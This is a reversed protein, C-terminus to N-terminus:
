YKAEYPGKAPLYIKDIDAEHNELHLVANKKGSGSREVILLIRYWWSNKSLKSKARKHSRKYYM